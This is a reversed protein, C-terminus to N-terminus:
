WLSYVIEIENMSIMVGVLFRNVCVMFFGWIFIAYQISIKGLQLYYKLISADFEPKGLASTM